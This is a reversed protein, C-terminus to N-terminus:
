CQCVHPSDGSVHGPLLIGHEIDNPRHRCFAVSRVGFYFGRDAAAPVVRAAEDNPEAAVGGLRFAPASDLIMQPLM